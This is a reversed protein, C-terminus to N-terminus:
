ELHVKSNYTKSAGVIVTNSSVSTINPEIISINFDPYHKFPETGFRYCLTATMVGNASEPFVFTSTGFPTQLCEYESVCLKRYVPEIASGLATLSGNCTAGRPIWKAVDAVGAQAGGFGLIYNSIHSGYFKILQQSNVIALKSNVAIVDKVVLTFQKM